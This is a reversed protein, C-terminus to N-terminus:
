HMHFLHKDDVENLVHWSGKHVTPSVKHGHMHTQAHQSCFLTLPKM